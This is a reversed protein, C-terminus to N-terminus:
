SSSEHIVELLKVLALTEQSCGDLLIKKVIALLMPDGSPEGMAHYLDKAEERDNEYNKGKVFAPLVANISYSGQQKWSYIHRKRFPAMLDITAHLIKLIRNKKQPFESALEKLCSLEFSKNYVLICPDEPIDKLLKELFGKRPDASPQALFKRHCLKGGAHKQIHLSYRFPLQQYPKLRDYPPIAYQLTEFNLFCLPYWLQELFQRLEPKKVITKKERSEELLLRQQDKFLKGIDIKSAKDDLMKKQRAIEKKVKAQQEKVEATYNETLFGKKEVISGNVRDYFPYLYKLCAKSIIVGAGSIVYYKVAIVHLCLDNNSNIKNVEYLEWGNWRKRMIDAKVIVGDYSFVAEYIVTARKMAEATQRIQEDISFGDFPITIGGPFLKQAMELARQEENTCSKGLNKSTDEM